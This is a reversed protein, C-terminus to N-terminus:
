PTEVAHVVAQPVASPLLVTSPEGAGLPSELEAWSRRAAGWWWWSIGAMVVGAGLRVLYAFRVVPAAGASAVLGPQQGELTGLWTLVVVQVLLGGHWLVQGLRSTLVRRFHDNENLVLLIVVLWSTLLGALAAHVHGVLANTFKWREAMGPWGSMLGTAFVVLGWGAAGWLWGRAATPWREVRNIWWMLPLWVGTSALAVLQSPETHLHDGGGLAAISGFHLMLLGAALWRRRGGDSPLMRLLVPTVLLVAVVGLVSAATNSHTAGANSPNIPPYVSPSSALVLAVPVALTGLVVLTRVILTPTSELHRQRWGRVVLWVGSAVLGACGLAVAFRGRGTWELFVKGSSAGSLWDFASVALAASWGALALSGARGDDRAPSLFLLLAGLAPIAAWGYFQLNFHLPAWRGWTLAGLFDGWSPAVLLVALGLGVTNALALWTVAHLATAAGLRSRGLQLVPSTPRKM